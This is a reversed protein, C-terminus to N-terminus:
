LFISTHENYGTGSMTFNEYHSTRTILDVHQRAEAHFRPDVTAHQVSSQRQESPRAAAHDPARSHCLTLEIWPHTKAVAGRVM